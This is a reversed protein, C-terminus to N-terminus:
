QSNTSPAVDGRLDQEQEQISVPRAKYPFFRKLRLIPREIAFWSLSAVAFSLAVITLVPFHAYLYRPALVPAVSPMIFHYIYLGYSIRGTYVLPSSELAKTLLWREGSVSAMMATCTLLIISQFYIVGLLEHGRYWADADVWFRIATLLSVLAISCALIRSGFIDFIRPLVPRALALAAGAALSDMCSFVSRVLVSYSAGSLAGFVKFAASSCVVALITAPLFRRPVLFILAPWVVYFQEEVSLSWLHPLPGLDTIVPLGPVYNATYTLLRPLNTIVGTYGATAVVAVVLYYIPFIRLVRRAYFVRLSYFRSQPIEKLDLLIGTILFGSLCFFIVVGTDGYGVLKGITANSSFHGIMVTIIALARLGDLQPFYRPQDM